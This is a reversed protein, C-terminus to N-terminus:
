NDTVTWFEELEWFPRQKMFTRFQAILSFYQDETLKTWHVSAWVAQAPHVINPSRALNKLLIGDIPPHAVKSINSDLDGLVVISKLYVAVLKAARGYTVHAIGKVKLYSVIEKCWQRHLLDFSDSTINEHNSSTVFDVLGCHEIAARLQSVKAGWARQAARAGAWAAFNHKHQFANYPM